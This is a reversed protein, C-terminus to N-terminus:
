QAPHRQAQFTDAGILITQLKALTLADFMLEVDTSGDIELKIIAGEAPDDSIVVNVIDLVTAPTSPKGPM